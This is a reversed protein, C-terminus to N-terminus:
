KQSCCSSNMAGQRSVTDTARLMEGSAERHISPTQRRNTDLSDNINQLRGFGFVDGCTQKDLRPASVIAQNVRDNLLM